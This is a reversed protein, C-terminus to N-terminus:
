WEERRKAEKSDDVGEERMDAEREDRYRVRREREREPEGEKIVESAEEGIKRNESFWTGHRSKKVQNLENSDSLTTLVRDLRRLWEYIFVPRKSEPLTLLATENLTVSEM